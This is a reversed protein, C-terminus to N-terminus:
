VNKIKGIKKRAFKKFIFARVNNTFLVQVIFRKIVNMIFEFFNIIKKNYLYM